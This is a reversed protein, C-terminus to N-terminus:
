NVKEFSFYNLNFGGSIARVTFTYVGPQLNFESSTVDTWVQWGGTVPILTNGLNVFAYSLRIEGGGSESAVRYTITYTGAEEVRLLYTMYDNNDIWGVNKGGGEDTTDQVQVGSMDTYFEAQIVNLVSPVPLTTASLSVNESRNNAFDVTIVDISYNTDPNLGTVLLGNVTTSAKLVGNFFVDYQKVAVDDTAHNWKIQVSSSTTKQLTLGSITSPSEQDMGQYDKQYVRVYDVVMSQPFITDDVGQSGGWTGGVAINMILHFRQDFPWADSNAIDINSNPNYGFYAFKVGDIYLDIKGPEWIMEYLHYETEAGTIVKNFGIQTGLSHNYAGTHITGFIRDDDYGVYEMIDIEGSDPWGGYRWDTPLMWLATWLGRGSPMKARIQIRGYQWDGRYKSVLRASTYNNSGVTEKLATIYLNGDSVRANDLDAETYYQLEQNGWGSGGVDYTWKTSDVLGDVDFEDCWVPQWNDINDLFQCSEPVLSRDDYVATTTPPNTTPAVTTPVLTTPALTTPELTTPNSTTPTQTTVEVTTSITQCGVLFLTIAIMMMALLKKM